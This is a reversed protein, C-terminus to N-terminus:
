QKEGIFVASIGPIPESIHPASISGAVQKAGEGMFKGEYVGVYRGFGKNGQAVGKFVIADKEVQIPAQELNIGSNESTVKIEGSVTKASFNANLSFDGEYRDIIGGNNQLFESNNIYAKGQYTFSGSLKELEKTNTPYGGYILEKTIVADSYQTYDSTPINPKLSLPTGEVVLANIESKTLEEFARTVTEGIASQNVKSARFNAPKYSPETQPSSNANPTPTNGNLNPQTNNSNPNQTAGSTSPTQATGTTNSTQTTTDTNLNQTTNNINPNQPTNNQPVNTVNTNQSTPSNDTNLAPTKNGGDSSGCATVAVSILISLSTTKLHMNM